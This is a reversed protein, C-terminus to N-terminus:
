WENKSTAGGIQKEHRGDDLEHMKDRFDSSDPNDLVRIATIKPLFPMLLRMSMFRDFEAGLGLQELNPCNRVILAVNDSTLRWQPPLLLHRLTQGHNQAIAEITDDRLSSSHLDSLPSSGNSSPSRPYTTPSDYNTGRKDGILYLKELGTTNALLHQLDRSIKDGRLLKLSPFTPGTRRLPSDIFAAAGADGLAGTSNIVTIEEVASFDYISECFDDATYTFLNKIAIRRLTLPRSKSQCRGFMTSLNVSPERMERMRPSWVIKLERLNASEALLLSIDDVYCLPDVDLVKLAVLSPLPPVIMIPRPDRSSPYRVTLSRINSLKLAQWITPLMKANLEWSEIAVRVLTNLMISSDPVRGRKSFEELDHERWQGVIKLKKVYGSVNRLVLGNLGMIFPSGMGSGEVRGHEPSYRISEYSRLTVSTYLQPLTMYHFVRCTRCTRALDAPAELKREGEKSVRGQTDWVVADRDAGSSGVVYRGDPSFSTDGQGLPSKSPTMSPASRLIGWTPQYPRPLHAKLEGSFADLLLHGQVHNTTVLLSKGDNSFELKTWEPINSGGPAPPPDYQRMDFTAFPPKDYNRVDYLLISSTSASAVAIVTASPDYAALYPTALNLRAQAYQSKLNWLRVTNDASCSLFTDDRP